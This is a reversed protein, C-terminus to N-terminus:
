SRAQLRRKVIGGVALLGTGFLSLTGPEPVTPATSTILSGLLVDNSVGIFSIDNYALLDFNVTLNNGTTGTFTSSCNNSNWSTTSNGYCFMFSEGAQLSSVVLTGKTAGLNSLDLDIFTKNSVEDNGLPDNAIGLGLEDTGDNKTFLNANDVTVNSALSTGSLCATDNGTFKNDCEHGYAIISHTGSTYTASTGLSTDGASSTPFFSYTDAWCHGAGVGGICFVLLGGAIRGTFKAINGGVLAGNKM